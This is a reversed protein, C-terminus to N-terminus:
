TLYNAVLQARLYHKFTWVGWARWSLQLLFRSSGGDSSSLLLQAFASVM